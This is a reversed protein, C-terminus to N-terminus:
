RSRRGVARDGRAIEERLQAVADEALAEVVDSRDLVAARTRPDARRLVVPDQLIETVRRGRRAETVLHRALWDETADPSRFFQSLDFV